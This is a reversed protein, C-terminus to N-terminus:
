QQYVRLRSRAPPRPAAPPVPESVTASPLRSPESGSAKRVTITGRGTTLKLAPGSGVAGALRAGHEKDRDRDGSVRLPEGYENEVDGRKAVATLEFRAGSPLAMQINGSRTEVDIKSLPVRVPRIEVDGREVTIELSQTFDSISVDRSRTSLRIPGVLNEANVQGLAMRIQGPVKEVALETQSNDFRLPRSLNRFQQDGSFSGGITVQGEINELEIDQGRSSKIDVAGKVGVARVVDSRRLDFRANGGINNLRVGANDSDVDVSGTIDNIDFDGYRGHAEVTAGRPVTIDLDTSVRQVGSVREQNTRVIVRDGQSLIELPCQQNATNAESQHFARITKRGSVKVEETDAGVVRTNGRLNEIVVRPTKGATKQGALAFDFSEGFVEIGRMSFRGQPWKSVVRNTVSLAGGALAILVILTWEGGSIGAAPLPTSRMAWVLIERLRLAGWGILLFPWYRALIEMLPLDPRLNNALFLGGILILLLPGILSSRRRM